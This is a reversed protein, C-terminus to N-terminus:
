CFFWLYDDAIDKIQKRVDDHLTNGYAREIEKWDENSPDFEPANEPERYFSGRAKRGKRSLKIKSGEGGFTSPSVKKM